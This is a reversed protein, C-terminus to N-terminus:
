QQVVVEGAMGPHVTCFYSFTGATAFVRTVTTDAVINIDAPAGPTTRVFIVNHGLGDPALTIHFRVSGGVGVTVSQPQFLSGPTYVDAPEVSLATTKDSKCAGAAAALMAAIARVRLSRAMITRRIDM